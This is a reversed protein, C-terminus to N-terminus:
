SEVILNADPTTALHGSFRVESLAVGAGGTAQEVDFVAHDTLMPQPLRVLQHGQGDILTAEIVQGDGFDVVLTRVRGTAEFTEDDLQDGNALELATIWVPRAFIFEVSGDDRGPSWATALDDDLVLTGAFRRGDQDDRVSSGGVQAPMLDRTVDPYATADFEHAPGAPTAGMGGATALGVISGVIVGVLVVWTWPPVRGIRRRAVAVPASEAPVVPPAAIPDVYPDGLPNGTEGSAEAPADGPTVDPEPQLGHGCRACLSRQAANFAECEPCEVLDVGGTVAELVTTHAAEPEHGLDTPTDDVPVQVVRPGAATPESTTPSAAPVSGPASPEDLSAGCAGCFNDGRGVDAACTPCTSSM